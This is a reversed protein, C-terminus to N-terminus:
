KILPVLAEALEPLTAPATLRNAHVLPVEVLCFKAVLGVTFGQINSIDYWNLGGSNMNFETM